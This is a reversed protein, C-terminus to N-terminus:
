EIKFIEVSLNIELLNAIRQIFKAKQATSSHTEIFYGEIHRVRRGSENKQASVLPYGALVIEKLESIHKLGIYQLTKIFTDTASTEAFVIGGSFTVRLKKPPAKPGSTLKRKHMGKLSYKIKKALSVFEDKLAELEQREKSPLAIMNTLNEEEAKIEDPIPINLDNCRDIIECVKRHRSKAEISPSTKLSRLREEIYANLKSLAEFPDFNNM